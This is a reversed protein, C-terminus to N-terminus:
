PDEGGQLYMRGKIGSRIAGFRVSRIAGSRFSRIACVLARLVFWVISPVTSNWGRLQKIQWFFVYLNFLLRSMPDFGWWWFAGPITLTPQPKCLEKTPTERPYSRGGGRACSAGQLTGMPNHRPQEHSSFTIFWENMHSVHSMQIRSMVGQIAYELSTCIYLVHVYLYVFCIQPYRHFHIYESIYICTYMFIYTCICLYIHTYIYIYICMYIYMYICM